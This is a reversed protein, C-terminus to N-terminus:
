LINKLYYLLHVVKIKFNIQLFPITVSPATYNPSSIEYNTFKYLKSIFQSFFKM